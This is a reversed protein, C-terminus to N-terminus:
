LFKKLDAPKKLQLKMLINRRHIIATIPSIMLAEAVQQITHGDRLLNIVELQRATLRVTGLGDSEPQQEEM